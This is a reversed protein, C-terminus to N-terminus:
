DKKALYAGTMAAIGLVLISATWGGLRFDRVVPFDQFYEVIDEAEMNTPDYSYPDYVVQYDDPSYDYSEEAAQGIVQGAFDQGVINENVYQGFVEPNAMGDDSYDVMEASEGESGFIDEAGEVVTPNVRDLNEANMEEKMEDDEEEAEMVEEVSIEEEGEVGNLKEIFAKLEEKDESDDVIMYNVQFRAPDSSKPGDTLNKFRQAKQGVAFAKRKTTTQEPQGIRGQQGTVLVFNADGDYIITTPTFLQSDTKGVEFYMQCRSLNNDEIYAVGEKGDPIDSAPVLWAQTFFNTDENFSNDDFAWFDDSGIYVSQVESKALDFGGLGRNAEELIPDLFQM